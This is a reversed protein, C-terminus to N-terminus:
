IDVNFACRPPGRNHHYNHMLEHTIVINDSIRRGQVFDSQNNSVVEKPILSIYTHNIEKLIHGNVFFDRIAKCVDVGMIDWGKKFFASTYGDPGPARDDGISFMAEKIEDLEHRLKNVQDHLNGQDHLLKRLPKKLSKLKSVIQYMSHGAVQKNWEIAVVHPFSVKFTLFNFFKFPKQKRGSLTPIKLVTLSHDSIRYPQFLAYTALFSDVFELNGIIRDLKLLGGEGRPKQNWTFHIGSCNIDMVEIPSVCDKFEIMASNFRSSSSHSYELNLAVNYDGMLVWPMGRVVLKHCWMLLWPTGDWYLVVVRLVYVLMLLRNGSRSFKPMPEVYVEEVESDTDLSELQDGRDRDDGNGGSCEGAESARVLDDQQSLTEFPNKLNLIPDKETSTPPHWEYEVKIKEKTYGEGEVVPVVMKVIQKLEKDDSVIQSAILSLGDESYAVVPVKHMKVWVLVKKVEDNSFSLNPSWKHLIIPTSRIMWLGQQPVHEVSTQSDFKFYFLDDDDHIINQFGFKKWTNTVYNQVLPFAVKKGVFFRESSADSTSEKETSVNTAFSSKMDHQSPQEVNPKVSEVRSPQTNTVFRRAMMPKGYLGRLPSPVMAPLTPAMTGAWSQSRCVVGASTGYIGARM